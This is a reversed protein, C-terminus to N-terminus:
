FNIKLCSSEKFKKKSDDLQHYKEICEDLSIEECKGRVGVHFTVRQKQAMRKFIFNKEM